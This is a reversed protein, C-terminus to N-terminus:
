AVDFRVHNHVTAAHPPVFNSAHSAHVDRQLGTFVEVDHGLRNLTQRLQWHQADRILVGIVFLVRAFEQQTRKFWFGFWPSHVTNGVVKFKVLQLFIEIM